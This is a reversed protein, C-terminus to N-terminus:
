HSPWEQVNVHSFCEERINRLSYKSFRYKMEAVGSGIPCLVMPCSERIRQHLHAIVEAGKEM